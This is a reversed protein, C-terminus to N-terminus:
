VSIQHMKLVDPNLEIGLGPRETRHIYGNVINEPPQLLKHRWPVEGWGHELILTNPSAILVQVQSAVTVPGSAGHPATPINYATATDGVKKLESIGGIIKVDPMIIHMSQHEFVEVFGERLRRGEGGAIQLGCEEKVKVCDEMNNEPVPQEYWFIDLNRIADAVELAGKVSFHSHCDVLLDTDPGIIKRVAKLCDIGKRAAKASDINRNLGDFPALKIADFGQEVAKAANAAFGEPTRDTTARNINAYIRIKDNVAGGLLMYVPVGLSKGLIDWLAQDIASLACLQYREDTRFEAFIAEIHGPNRGILQSKLDRVATVQADYNKGAKLEGIGSIGEDTHVHVFVWDGRHNVHVASLTIDTIKM